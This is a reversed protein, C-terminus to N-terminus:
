LISNVDSFLTFGTKEIFAIMKTKLVKEELQSSYNACNWLLNEAAYIFGNTNNQKKIQYCSSHL